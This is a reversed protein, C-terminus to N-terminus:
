LHGHARYWDVTRRMGEDLDVRPTYGLRDRAKQISFARNNRFFRVRRRHLPPEIRLPVCIGECIASAAYVPWYPLRIRPPTAGVARAATAVYDALPLYSPGGVIFTEGGLGPTFGVQIFGDILDDIYVAHFNERGPGLM